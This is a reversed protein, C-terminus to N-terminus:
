FGVAVDFHHQDASGRFNFYEPYVTQYFVGRFTSLLAQWANPGWGNRELAQLNVDFRGDDRALLQFHHSSFIGLGEVRM